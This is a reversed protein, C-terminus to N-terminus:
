PEWDIDDDASISIGVFLGVGVGIIIGILTCALYLLLTM